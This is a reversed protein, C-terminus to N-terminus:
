ISSTKRVSGTNKRENNNTNETKICISRILSPLNLRNLFTLFRLWLYFGADFFLLADVSCVLWGTLWQMWLEYVLWSYNFEFFKMESFHTFSTYSAFLVYISSSYVYTAVTPILSKHQRRLHFAHWVQRLVSEVLKLVGHLLTWRWVMLRFVLGLMKLRMWEREREKIM